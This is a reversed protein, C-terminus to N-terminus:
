TLPYGAAFLAAESIRKIEDPSLVKEDMDLGVCESIGSMNNEETM